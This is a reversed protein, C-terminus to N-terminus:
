FNISLGAIYARSAPYPNANSVEVDFGTYDTFTLLNQASIYFRVRELNLKNFLTYGLEINKLRVYDGKQYVGDTEYLFSNVSGLRPYKNSPRESTWYNNFYDISMNASPSYTDLYSFPNYIIHGGAYTFFITCDLNKYKITNLLSGFFQPMTQGVFTRDGDDIINNRNKDVIKIDGPELGYVSAVKAEDEQWIGGFRKRYVVSIPQGIFYSGVRDLDNYLSVIENKNFSYNFTTQWSFNENSINVTNLVFEIGENKIAGVNVLATRYGSEVPLPVNYLLDDTKKQYIDISGSVRNYIFGYDLGLDFQKSKEWTLEPQALISTRSGYAIDNGFVYNTYISSTADVQAMSQYSNIEQNGVAGYSVRLKLNNIIESNKLFNEESLRWAVSGSPFYGWKHGKAFKSSGDARFTVTALYKERLVYNLRGYFSALTSKVKDSNVTNPEGTGLSYGRTINSANLVQMGTYDWDFSSISFGGVGSISQVDDKVEYTLTNDSQLYVQQGNSRDAINVNKYIGTMRSDQFINSINNIIEGGNDTKFKLNKSLDVEFGLGGIIRNQKFNNTFYTVAAVPNPRLLLNDYYSGDQNYVPATPKSAIASGMTGQDLSNQGAVGDTNSSNTIAQIVNLKLSLRLWDKLESNMNYRLNARKYSTNLIIGKQDLWEIGLYHNTLSGGGKIGLSYNQNIGNQTIEDQWDTSFGKEKMLNEEEDWIYTGETGKDIIERFQSANLVEQKNALQLLSLHTDLTIQIKEHNGKKTTIIVVGNSGRSGYIATSSADKLIEISEIDQPAIVDLGANSIIGDVVYLPKNSAGGNGFSGVGRILLNSSGGPKFSSKSVYVGTALGQLADAVSGSKVNQLNESKVSAVSGTLDSKKITGYGIAVVEDIGIADEEMIVNISIREAIPLEQTKMGVFSFQLSANEPIDALSYRGNTDTVTGLTTGKVVVTVGPLPQGTSDTVKGSVSRQQGEALKETLEVNKGKHIVILRDNVTYTIDTGKLVRNLIEDVTQNEINVDMEKSLDIQKLNYMFSFESQTEIMEFLEELTLHDGKVTLEKTQSYSSASVQMLAVFLFVGILKMIRLIKPLDGYQWSSGRKLKKKM